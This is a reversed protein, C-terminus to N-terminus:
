WALFVYITGCMLTSWLTIFLFKLSGFKTELTTGLPILSSMNMLIHLVGSHVYTSTIVRYFEGRTLIANPVIAIPGLPYTFIFILIHIIINFVLLSRTVIPVSHLYEQVRDAMSLFLIQIILNKVISFVHEFM